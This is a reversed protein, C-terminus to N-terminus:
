KKGGGVKRRERHQALPGSTDMGQQACASAFGRRAFEQTQALAADIDLLIARLM